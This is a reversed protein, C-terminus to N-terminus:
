LVVLVDGVDTHAFVESHGPPPPPGHPRRPPGGPGKPPRPGKPGKPKKGGPPPPPPHEGDPGKGPRHHPPPPPPHEGDKGGKGPKHHPPPPPHGDEGERPPPGDRPAGEAPAEFLEGDFEFEEEDFSRKEFDGEVKETGNRHEPFVLGSQKGGEEGVFEDFVKNVKGDKTEVKYSGKFTGIDYFGHFKRPAVVKVDGTHSHAKTETSVFPPSHVHLTIAGTSSFAGVKVPKPPPPGRHEPKKPPGSKFMSFWGPKEEREEPHEPRNEFEEGRKHHFEPEGKGHKPPHHPKHEGKGGKHPPPPPHSHTGNHHPPPPFLPQVNVTADIDGTVTKFIIARSVNFTGGVNGSITEADLKGAVVESLNINGSDTKLSLHKFRVDQASPDITLDIDKSSRISISPLKDQKASLVLHVIHSSSESSEVSLAHSREDSKMEVGEVEGTWTSEVVVNVIPGETEEATRSVVLKGEGKFDLDLHNGRGLHIPFSAKAATAEGVVSAEGYVTEIVALDEPQHHHPHVGHHGFEMPPLPRGEPGDFNGWQEMGFEPGQHHHHRGHHHPGSFGAATKQAIILTFWVVALAVLAKKMKSMNAYKDKARQAVSGGGVRLGISAPHVQRPDFEDDSVPSLPRKEDAPVQHYVPLSM